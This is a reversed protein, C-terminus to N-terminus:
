VGARRDLRAPEPNSFDGKKAAVKSGAETLDGAANRDVYLTDGDLVLWVRTKGEPGFVLLAYKPKGTYGREKKITRDIKNLDGALVPSVFLGAAALLLFCRPM